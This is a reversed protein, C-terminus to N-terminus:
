PIFISHLGAISRSRPSTNGIYGTHEDVPLDTSRLHSAIQGKMLGNEIGIPGRRVWGEGPPANSTGLIMLYTSDATSSFALSRCRASPDVILPHAAADGRLKLTGPLETTM